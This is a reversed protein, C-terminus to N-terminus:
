NLEQLLYDGTDFIELNYPNIDNELCYKKTTQIANKCVLVFFGLPYVLKWKKRHDDVDESEYYFPKQHKLDDDFYGGPRRLEHVLYNRYGYMLNSHKFNILSLQNYQIHNLPWRKEIQQYPLDFLEVKPESPSEIGKIKSKIYSKLENFQIERVTLLFKHLYLISVKNWLDFLTFDELFTIFKKKNNYRFQSLVTSGITDIISTCIIKKYLSDYKPFNTTKINDIHSEFVDFFNNISSHLINCGIRSM